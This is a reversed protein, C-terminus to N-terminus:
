KFNERVFIHNYMNSHPGQAFMQDHERKFLNLGHNKLINMVEACEALGVNLEILVSKVSKNSFTEFAGNVIKKEIGDVDIKIHNPFTPNFQGIFDDITFGLMSQKFQPTFSEGKWDRAEGFTSLAGGLETNAMYFSDLKTQDNFAICFSQIRDDFSNLEINRSLIYYNGPAPEFACVRIGRLAAYLSYVGVNAGVDWLVDEKDFTNIWEITEPEKTLLTRARFLPIRGPCFFKVTGVDTEQVIISTLNEALHAYVQATRSGAALRIGGKLLSTAVDLTKKRIGM